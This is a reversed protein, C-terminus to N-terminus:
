KSKENMQKILIDAMDIAKCAITKGNEGSSTNPNSLLGKMAEIIIHTRINMGPYRVNGYTDTPKVPEPYVPDTPVIKM